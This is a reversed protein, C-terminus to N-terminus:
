TTPSVPHQMANVYEGAVDVPLELPCAKVLGRDVLAVAGDVVQLAKLGASFGNPRRIVEHGIDVVKGAL